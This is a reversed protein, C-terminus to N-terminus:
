GDATTPWSVQGTIGLSVSAILPKQDAIEIQYATVAASFEMYTSPLTPFALRWQRLAGSLFFSLIGSTADQQPDTPQFSLRFTLEGPTIMPYITEEYEGGDLTTADAADRRQGPGSISLVNAFAAFSEPIGGDGLMLLTGASPVLRAGAGEQTIVAYQSQVGFPLSSARALDDIVDEESGDIYYAQLIQIDGFLLPSGTLATRLLGALQKAVFYDAAWATVDFAADVTRGSGDLSTALSGGSRRFVVAPLAYGEPLFVPTIRNSVLGTIATQGQLYALLGRELEM